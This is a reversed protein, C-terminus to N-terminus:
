SIFYGNREGFKYKGKIYFNDKNPLIERIIVIGDKQGYSYEGKILFTKEKIKVLTKCIGEKKGNQLVGEFFKGKKTDKYYINGNIKGGTFDGKIKKGETKFKGETIKGEKFEGKFIDGNSFILKSIEGEKTSFRNQEDFAGIYKQNNPWSYEGKILSCYDDSLLGEFKEGNPLTLLNEVISYKAGNTYEIVGRLNEKKKVLKKGELMSESYKPIKPFELKDESEVIYNNEM